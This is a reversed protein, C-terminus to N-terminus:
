QEISFFRKFRRVMKQFLEQNISRDRPGYKEISAVFINIDEQSLTGRERLVIILAGLIFFVTTADAHSEDPQDDSKDSLLFQELKEIREHIDIDM